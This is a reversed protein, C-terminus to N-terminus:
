KNRIKNLILYKKNFVRGCCVWFIATHYEEMSLSNAGAMSILYFVIISMELLNNKLNRLGHYLIILFFSAYFLSGLIGTELLIRLYQQDTIAKKGLSLAAHSYLGIGDGTLSININDVFMNTRNAVFTLDGSKFVEFKEITFSLMEKKIYDGSSFFTIYSLAVIALFSIVMQLSFKGKYLLGLVFFLLFLIATIIPARQGCLFIIITLLSIIIINLLSRENKRMLKIIYYCFFILGGYSLWYPYCSFGSLRMIENYNSQISLDLTSLSSKIGIYWAPSWIYLLLGIIAMSFYVYKGDDIILRSSSYYKGIFFFVTLALQYRIGSYLLVSNIGKLYSVFGLLFLCALIIIDYQDWQKYKNLMLIICCFLYIMSFKAAFSFGFFGLTIDLASFLFYYPLIYKIIFNM